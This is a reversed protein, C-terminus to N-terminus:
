IENYVMTREAANLSSDFLMISQIQGMFNTSFLTGTLTSNLEIELVFSAGVAVGLSYDNGVKSVSTGNIRLSQIRNPPDTIILGAGENYSINNLISGSTSDFTIRTIIVRTTQTTTLSNSGNLNLSGAFVEESNSIIDTLSGDAWALFKTPLIQIGALSLSTFNLNADVMNDGIIEGGNLTVSTVNGLGAWQLTQNSITHEFILTESESGSVYNFDYNVGGVSARIRPTGGTENVEVQRSFNLTIRLTEGPRYFGASSISRSTVTAPAADIMISNSLNLPVQTFSNTARDQIYSGSGNAINGLTIPTLASDGSQITYSFTFSTGSQVGTFDPTLYRAPSLGGIPIRPYGGVSNINVIEDFTLEFTLVNGVLYTGSAPESTISARPPTNDIIVTPTPIIPFTVNSITNGALDRIIHTGVYLPSNISIGDLDEVNNAITYHFPISATNNNTNTYTARVPGTTLNIDVGVQTSPINVPESFQLSMDLRSLTATGHGNRYFGDVPPTMGTITPRIGDVTTNTVTTNPITFNPITGAEDTVVANNLQINTINIESGTSQDGEEVTYVFTMTDAGEGGTLYTAVKPVGGISFNLVPAGNDINVRIVTNFEAILHLEQGIIWVDDRTGGNVSPTTDTGRSIREIRPLVANVIIGTTDPSGLNNNNPLQNMNNGTSAANRISTPNTILNNLTIGDTDVHGPLPTYRFTLTDSGSGELLDAQHNTTGVVLNLFPATGTISVPRDFVLHFDLHQSVRYTNNEPLIVDVLRPVRGNILLGATPAITGPLVNSADNGNADKITGGALTIPTANFILGNTDSVNNKITYRFNLSQTGSGSVYPLEEWNDNGIEVRLTPSGTVYVREDYVVSFTLEDNWYYAGPAHAHTIATITPAANDIKINTYHVAKISTSCDTLEEKLYFQLTAGNLNIGQFRIGDSDNDSAQVTYTFTLTKSKDGSVYEAYRTTSGIELTLRPSGTVLVNSPFSLTFTLVDDTKFNGSHSTKITFSNTASRHDAIYDDKGSKKEVQCAM